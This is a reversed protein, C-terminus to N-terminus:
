HTAIWAGDTRIRHCPIKLRACEEQLATQQFHSLNQTLIVQRIDFLPRVVDIKGKFGPCVIAYDVSIREHSTMDSWRTDNLLLIRDGQFEIFPQKITLNGTYITDFVSIHTLNDIGNKLWFREAAQEASRSPLSDLRLVINNGNDIFNISTSGSEQYVAWLNRMPPRSIVTDVILYSLTFLLVGILIRARRTLLFATGGFIVVFLLILTHPEIWINRVSAYGLSAIHQACQEIGGAMADICRALLPVPHGAAAMAIWLFGMSLLIPLLPVVLLNSLLGLLPLEHFYYVALPLTGM